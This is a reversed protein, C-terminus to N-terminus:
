LYIEPFPIVMRGLSIFFDFSISVQVNLTGSSAELPTAGLIWYLAKPLTTREFRPKVYCHPLTVGGGLFIAGLVNGGGGM